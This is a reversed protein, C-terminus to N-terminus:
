FIIIGVLLLCIIDLQYEEWPACMQTKFLDTKLLDYDASAIETIISREGRKM